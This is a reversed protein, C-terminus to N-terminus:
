QGGDGDTMEESDADADADADPNFEQACNWDPDVRRDPLVAIDSPGLVRLLAIDFVLAANPPIVAGAGNPGYGLEPPIFLRWVDGEAMLPLAERWGQIIGTLPLALPQAGQTSDFVSGDPLAGTYDVCVWNQMTPSAAGAPGSELVEYQLGSTTITVESREANQSLFQRSMALNREAPSEDTPLDIEPEDAVPVADTDAEAIAADTEAADPADAEATDAAEQGCAALIALAAVMATRKM